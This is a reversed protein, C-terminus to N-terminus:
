MTQLYYFPLYDPPNIECNTEIIDRTIDFLVVFAEESYAMSTINIQNVYSIVKLVELYM